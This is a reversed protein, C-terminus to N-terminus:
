PTSGEKARRAAAYADIETGSLSGDKDADFSDFIPRLEGSFGAITVKGESQALDAGVLWEPPFEKGELAGSGDHDRAAFRRVMANRFEEFGIKGDGNRDMRALMAQTTDVPQAADRKNNSADATTCAALALVGIVISRNRM